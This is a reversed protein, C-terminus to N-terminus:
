DLGFLREYLRRVEGPPLGDGLFSDAIRVEAHLHMEIGPNTVSEPTGSEGVGALLDGTSVSVGVGIGEAIWGLHAYRTVVGNGHDVWVQRGRYIDLTVEDTFGQRATLAALESVLRPTIDQYAHDARIVVGDYMALVPTDAGAPACVTGPYFDIGEHFGNRYERPANPILADSNPLCAGALPVSFGVLDGPDPDSLETPTPSPTGTTDTTPPQTASPTPGPTDDPVITVGPGDGGRCAALLLLSLALLM